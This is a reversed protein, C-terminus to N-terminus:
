LQVGSRRNWNNIAETKAREIYVDEYRYHEMFSSECREGISMLDCIQVCSRAHGCDCEIEYQTGNGDPLNPKNGCFPCDLLIFTNNSM